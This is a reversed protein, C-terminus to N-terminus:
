KEPLCLWAAIISSAIYLIFIIIITAIGDINIKEIIDANNNSIINISYEYAAFIAFSLLTVFFYSKLERKLKLSACVSGLIFSPIAYFYVGGIFGLILSDYSNELIKKLTPSENKEGQPIIYLVFLIGYIGSSLTFTIVTKISPPISLNMAQMRPERYVWTTPM